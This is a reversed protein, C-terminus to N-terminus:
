KALATGVTGLYPITVPLHWVVAYLLFLGSLAALHALWTAMPLPLAQAVTHTHAVTTSILSRLLVILGGIMGLVLAMTMLIRLADPMVIKALQQSLLQQLVGVLLVAEATILTRQKIWPGTRAAKKAMGAAHGALACTWARGPRAVGLM